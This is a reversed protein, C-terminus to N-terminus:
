TATASLAQPAIELRLEEVRASQDRARRELEALDLSRVEPVRDGAVELARWLSLKGLIGLELAELAEFVHLPGKPDDLKLKLEALKGMLWAAASRSAHETAGIDRILQKLVSRDSEIEHRLGEFLAERPSERHLSTLHQLLKVAATSGALHDNLYTSLNDASM